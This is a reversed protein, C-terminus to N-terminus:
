QHKINLTAGEVLPTRGVCSRQITLVGGRVWRVHKGVWCWGQIAGVGCADKNKNLFKVGCLEGEIVSGEVLYCKYRYLYFGARIRGVFEKISSNALCM